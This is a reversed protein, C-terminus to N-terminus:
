FVIPAPSTGLDPDSFPIIPLNNEIRWVCLDNVDHINDLSIGTTGDHDGSLIKELDAKELAKSSASLFAKQTTKDATSVGSENDIAQELTTGM